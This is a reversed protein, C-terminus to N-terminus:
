GNVDLADKTIQLLEKYRYLITKFTINLILLILILHKNFTLKLWFKLFVM